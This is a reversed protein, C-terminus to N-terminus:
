KEEYEKLIRRSMCLANNITGSNQLACNGINPLFDELAKTLLKICEIKEDQM